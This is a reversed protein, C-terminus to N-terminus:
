IKEPYKGEAVLKQIAAKVIEKDEKYTVGFWSDATELVKVNAKGARVMEGILVPLLYEKKKDDVPIEKLFTHFKKELVDLFEPYLGWMNMSVHSDTPISRISGDEQMTGAGEATKVIKYTEVVDTLYGSENVQCIGRTVSGHDSLTNMLQFGAMCFDYHGTEDASTHDATLYSFVKRYADKGYYDDANIVIFPENVVGKCMLVAHGTGWPKTRGNLKDAYGAPIDELEQYVYEVQVKQAIRDGIIERFDADLDKRIIFVVKDFGAEMADYISYDIILEGGPGVHELQKIGGGYRSGIGAAMVVLSAKAM